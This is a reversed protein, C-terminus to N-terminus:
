HAVVRALAALSAPADKRKMQRSRFPALLRTERRANLEWDLTVLSGRGNPEVTWTWVANSGNYFRGEPASRYSFRRGERDLDIVTSRSRFRVGALSLSVVWEAGPVLEGPDEIVAILRDNWTPLAAVDTILSFVADPEAEIRTTYSGRVQM